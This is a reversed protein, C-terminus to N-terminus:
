VSDLLVLRSLEKSLVIALNLIIRKAFKIYNYVYDPGVGSKFSCSHVMRKRAFRYQSLDRAIMKAVSDINDCGYYSQINRESAIRKKFNNVGVNKCLGSMEELDVNNQFCCINDIDPKFMMNKKSCLILNKSLDLLERPNLVAQKAMQKLSNSAANIHSVFLSEPINDVSVTTSLYQVYSRFLGKIADEFVSFYIVFFSAAIVNQSFIDGTGSYSERFTKKIRSSDDNFDEIDDLLAANILM